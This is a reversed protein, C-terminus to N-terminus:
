MTERSAEILDLHRIRYAGKGGRPIREARLRGASIWNSITTPSTGVAEAAEGASEYVDKM